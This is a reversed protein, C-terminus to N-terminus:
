ANGFQIIKVKDKASIPHRRSLNELERHYESLNRRAIEKGNGFLIAYGAYTPNKEILKQAQKLFLDSRKTDTLFMTINGIFPFVEILGRGINLTGLKIGEVHDLKNKGDFIAGAVHITTHIVGILARGPGTLTSLGPWYGWVNLRSWISTSTHSTYIEGYSGFFILNGNRSTHTTTTAYTHISFIDPTQQTGSLISGTRLFIQTM